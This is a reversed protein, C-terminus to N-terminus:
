ETNKVYHFHVLRSHYLGIANSQESQDLEDM